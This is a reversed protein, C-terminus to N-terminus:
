KDEDIGRRVLVLKKAGKVKIQMEYVGWSAMEELIEVLTLSNLQELSNITKVVM